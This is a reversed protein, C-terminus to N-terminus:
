NQCRWVPAEPHHKLCHAEFSVGKPCAEGVGAPSRSLSVEINKGFEKELCSKEAESRSCSQFVWKFAKTVPVPILRTSAPANLLYEVSLAIGKRPKPVLTVKLVVHSKLDAAIQWHVQEDSKLLYIDKVIWGSDRWSSGVKPGRPDDPTIITDGHKKGNLFQSCQINDKFYHELTVWAEREGLRQPDFASAAQLDQRIQLVVLVTAIVVFAILLLATLKPGYKPTQNM